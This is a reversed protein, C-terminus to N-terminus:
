EYDLKLKGEKKWRDLLTRYQDKNECLLYDILDKDKKEDFQPSVGDRTYFSYWEKIKNVDDQAQHQDVDFKYNKIKRKKIPYNKPDLYDEEELFTAVIWYTKSGMLYCYLQAQKLYSLPIGFTNWSEYNKKGTTKIEIIINKEKYYGDPIGGIVDDKDKFFDFEYQYPDYTEIKTKLVQNLADIVLPEIAIGADVYKRDLIPVGLWSMNAFAVFQSKFGDTELVDGVSSGGIKKFGFKNWLSKNLLKQHFDKDLILVKKELDLVYEKKNFFHRKSISAM